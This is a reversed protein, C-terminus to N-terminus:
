QALLWLISQTDWCCNIPDVLMETVCKMENEEGLALYTLIIFKIEKQKKEGLFEEENKKIRGPENRQRELAIGCYQATGAQELSKLFPEPIWKKLTLCLIVTYVNIGWRYFLTRIPKSYHVYRYPRRSCHLTARALIVLVVRRERGKSPSM